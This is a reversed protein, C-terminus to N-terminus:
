CRGLHMVDADVIQFILEVVDCVTPWGALVAGFQGPPANLLYHQVIQIKEEPSM